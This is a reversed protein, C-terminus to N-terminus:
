ANQSYQNKAAAWDTDGRDCQKPKNDYNGELVKIYNSDNDLVWGITITWSRDNQGTLFDSDNAKDIIQQWNDAFVKESMRTNLKGLRKRTMKFCKTLRSKSNWYTSFLHM